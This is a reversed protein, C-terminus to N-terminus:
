CNDKCKKGKGACETVCFVKTFPNENCSDVCRYFQSDCNNICRRRIESRSERKEEKKPQSVTKLRPQNTSVVTTGSSTDVTAEPQNSGSLAYTPKEVKKVPKINRPVPSKITPKNAEGYIKTPSQPQARISVNKSSSNVHGIQPSQQKIPAVDFGTISDDKFGTLGIVSVVFLVGIILTLYDKM